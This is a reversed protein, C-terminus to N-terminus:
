EKMRRGEWEERLLGMIITDWYRGDRYNEQRMAGERRFGLKEYIRIARPNYEFVHLTVRHLNLGEFAHRMMLASAETGFGQGWVGKDGISIGFLANRNHHNFQHFGTTGILQDVDRRVIGLVINDGQSVQELFREEDRLSLPRRALIYRTVEPDNFWSQLTLADERELPRLYVKDGILFPNQM